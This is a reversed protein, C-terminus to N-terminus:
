EQKCRWSHTKPGVQNGLSPFDESTNIDPIIETTNATRPLDKVVFDKSPTYSLNCLSIKKMPEQQSEHKKIVALYHKELNLIHATAKTVNNPLGTVTVVNRNQSRRSSFHIDVQFQNM